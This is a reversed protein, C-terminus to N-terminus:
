LNLVQCQVKVLVAAAHQLWHRQLENRPSGLAARQATSGIPLAYHYVNICLRSKVTLMPTFYASM